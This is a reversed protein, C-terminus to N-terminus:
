KRLLSFHGTDQKKNTYQVLYWYDTSPMKMGNSYGDWTNDEPTIQKILKGYRDYVNVFEFPILNSNIEWIDNHGDENPTFFLPMEECVNVTVITKSTKTVITGFCNPATVSVKYDGAMELTATPIIIDRDTSTFNNPGTWNYTAGIVDNLSISITESYCTTLTTPTNVKFSEKVLVNIKIDKSVLVGSCQAATVTVKYEGTMDSMANLITLTKTNQGTILDNNQDFWQYTANTIDNTNIVISEGECIDIHNIPTLTFDNNSEITVSVTTPESCQSANNPTFIYDKTEVINTSINAVNWTGDIGNDSTTPLATVTTGECYTTAFSFTPTVTANVTVSVTIPESCQSPVNPTFIYNTAGTINTDISTNNWTGDIGNDSTIPLADATTAECYTTTFSFTPTVTANVTVSVTTPEGCQNAVNPTFTYNTAGTINTNISSNNWTGDIGNDSTTPLTTVTTGECYTTTFSFTPTVTANVTVSVTTPEGCQNAVNPTFTYNSLGLTNTDINAVNWTGDIGNDSTIPLTNATTAECYTTAFSFTPTVTANVTVSVTIPESCQSPVNPTFIYNTAGTINTDISTNNWTGDIGNDSTIPLADATTAECYTTTFSFTPTVTANVTVSVTTPEGCQNAVNPTFTYNTAGTINTDISSNNWTGDIGNDSTTPLTTVTTGECYTTTFSFTPTVTANVTVSVTTPEGCQNAVNPTFTYNSLGLTNTDINAVNWTGDIGNDSTIPLTNATNAECYTTAFSFTPTVTANVTVSVTTPEGCQNAVNPTFVYDTNGITNTDINAVNWTGDIGNDSTAPLANATTTECYTTTFSFTPTVTANVTVSVTTPEGCQNAVNPTFIYNTAGTINTDISTNNWTGDIGNDSTTPLTTVTTGECYTTTFSFTPTVTANVTVSVTTPEGCQNAVNPTFTYNSLGLTNTDINAVNWTGDIGNDSTTPLTNATTAECYTTAFSFTPTVTANITVSVTTPEGCQNAVNPTFVYDTNGITNTDINAVNWTGDIGNDSTAPLADATTTECYTTTFSFAPTVTANVTVSVTTPEGCQSAVNPTFIYNTAGTINTDISTNNWTGNIGNDSTTPLADATTAECYTTTFSFTPTVTANVTVSVTTPEGCQNAVNPTFTYNSLGLTNTDINAVNWTGDIGNDSTTPLTNATTAECYTTAFSFTPTVTANVTVSVTTPEGCQNAVNPTFVYDTNGITNTDINAVNWTGDIGNDSTAPLADATTTECYTTTFSFAPTVTANVTVSVTTPEGCQNAINPTFIYNTAGTINTDISTNNWTGDIGNDSTTPLADATTAECYTTTFSFTPTVTANVTVSVTTPEGCQNAVNPTFVYNTNGTINTDISSVNWTGDIGNDSTTPLANATTAECYTTAFSFTPTVTANVTVSVTTPEGCQNAVNPTFVYDTNGITNTDINAVNWTGDIGNDSTAPLANATTTECYTTTFSFIPTVTANVTVSVTLPDACETGIPTFVYDTNGIITTSITTPAWTGTIGNNDATPLANATDDECYTTTLTFVPTAKDTINVTVTLPDACETGAPTFTYDTDGITTTSITTPAWTGTIGNNDATPLANATDDECYSTTLTFVPTAKDTINVTVTLTDACETGAPTFIYDTNGITTTSITAPAWTGTIGNNDSTPLANATDDECYSTTLTFVPTAKDTINVTITLPDATETPAPTFTYDTDGITTTSITAPAWTGTIGSNDSAPLTDAIDDECYSTAVSFIPTSKSVINVTLTLPDACETGAPTFIYDTDGITTTSITAPAWTGTIGNNDSTPLTDPTDNEHYSTTVGFVPTAKNSISINVTLPDACETGAPTFIYDTNGITTTSITAPAWTGTIGNNDSTPLANATADECYSTTLTFVPTAKNTITVTVTLPDACETGAPTFTYDSDGITTTSITAPTWTGTISNNDSTPLANATDDECYSTTLTFVPTAKNTITITVTLPDAAETPAPTFTYDTDGITTTSITAPNWTGTIGNDDTTPLTNATADECYSTTLTFVPTVKDTITVTITLMDACETGAPTFTYDTDGIITTSITAPAWTGTIGNNDSTPLTDATDNENYSTNVTFVPTAKNTINVTVTLPDACETGAPTFIYDTNGITTTSITAPAWTGTIGNNDSTPLANATDDECYSTTLTFVPTAKDTINVTITLPDACETGAPTFTYDTDGITTTSITAPAWTGTIGNNDATPLANATDDECYATTLTFVPTAKDTITVTVTLPEACETGAPTFTYDTDGITTTSITAPAWTGTIGNNDATPLANATDDECYATTLTFVPTAKDTITVTVTLPEACETGAPTFTYDTDGIITTSITAPTWTGTISNNDSTPLANATDDECYATTLTFVPTAKDSINVTLTLPNACQNADPTFLYNSNGIITTSITTPTWTGTISNDSTTPLTDATDNECYSSNVSFTPTAKATITVDTTNDLTVPTGSCNTKTVSVTYNGDAAVTTNLIEIDKTTATFGNPGVWSYTAGTIDTASINLTETECITIPTTPPLTFTDDTVTINVKKIIECGFFNVKLTYEGADAVKALNITHAKTTAIPTVADTPSFWEFTIRSDNDLIDEFNYTVDLDIDADKCVTNDATTYTIDQFNEVTFLFLQSGSLGDGYTINRFDIKQQTCDDSIYIAHVKGKESYRRDSRGGQRAPVSPVSAWTREKIFAGNNILVDPEEGHNEHEIILKGTIQNTDDTSKIGGIIGEAGVLDKGHLRYYTGAYNGGEFNIDYRYLGLDEMDSILQSAPDPQNNANNLDGHARDTTSAATFNHNEIGVPTKGWQWGGNYYYQDTQGANAAFGGFDDEFPNPGQYPGAYAPVGQRRAAKDNKINIAPQHLTGDYNYVEIQGDLNNSQIAWRFQNGGADTTDWSWESGNVDNQTEIAHLRNDTAHIRPPNVSHFTLMHVKKGPVVKCDLVRQKNIWDTIPTREVEPLIQNFIDVILDRTPLLEYNASLRKYYEANFNKFVDNDEIYIKQMAAQSTGYREWHAGTGIDSSFFDTTTLQEHNQFDYDWDFPMGRSHGWHVKFEDATFFNPNEEIFIDMVILAVAEAMGEEFGSLVPVYHWEDNSSLIVNDRYGHLLEHIMLRPQSLDGNNESYTTSIQNPGNYYTNTGVALGDNVINVVHNRSPPGYVRKIIPNAIDYFEKIKAAQWGAFPGLGNVGYNMEVNVTVENAAAGLPEVNFSLPQSVWPNTDGAFRYLNIYFTDGLNFVLSPTRLLAERRLEEYSKGRTFRANNNLLSGRSIEDGGQTTGIDYRYYSGPGEWKAITNHVSQVVAFTNTTKASTNRTGRSKNKAEDAKNYPIEPVVIKRQGCSIPDHEQAQTVLPIIILLSYILFILHKKSLM